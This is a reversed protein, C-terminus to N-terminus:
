RRGRGVIPGARCMVAAATAAATLRGAMPSVTDAIRNSGCDPCRIHHRYVRRRVM